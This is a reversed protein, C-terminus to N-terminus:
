NLQAHLIFRVCLRTSPRVAKLRHPAGRVGSCVPRKYLLENLQTSVKLYHKLTQKYGRKRLRELTITTTLIASQAVAWGGKRTRSWKNHMVDQDYEPHWSCVTHLTLRCGPPLEM